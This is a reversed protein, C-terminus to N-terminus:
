SIVIVLNGEVILTSLGLAKAQLLGKLWALIEARIALGLRAQKYFVRLKTSSHDRIMNSCRESPNGLSYGDFNLKVSGLPPPSWGLLVKKMSKNSFCASKQDLM